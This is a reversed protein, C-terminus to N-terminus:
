LILVYGTLFATPALTLERAHGAKRMSSPRLSLPQRCQIRAAFTEKESSPRPPTRAGQVTLHSHTLRM